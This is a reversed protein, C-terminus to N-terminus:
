LPWDDAPPEDLHGTTSPAASEGARTVWMFPAEIGILRRGKLEERARQLRKKIKEAHAAADNGDDPNQRAIVQKVRDYNVV